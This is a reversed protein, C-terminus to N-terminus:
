KLHKLQVDVAPHALKGTVINVPGSKPHGAPILPDIVQETKTLLKDCDIADASIRGPFEEKHKTNCSEQEQQTETMQQFDRKM